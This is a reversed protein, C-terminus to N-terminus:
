EAFCESTGAPAATREVLDWEHNWCDFETEGLEIPKFGVVMAAIPEDTETSIIPMAIVEDVAM